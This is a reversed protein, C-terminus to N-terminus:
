GTACEAAGPDGPLLWLQNTSAGPFPADGVQVSCTGVPLVALWVRGGQDDVPFDQTPVPTWGTVDVGTSTSPATGQNAQVLPAGQPTAWGMVFGTGDLVVWQPACGPGTDLTGYQLRLCRYDLVGTRELGVLASLTWRQGDTEGEALVQETAGEPPGAYGYAAEFEDLATQWRAEDMGVVQNALQLASEETAVPQDREYRSDEVTIVVGPEQEWVIRHGYIRGEDTMPGVLARHGHVDADTFPYSSNQEAMTIAEDVTLGYLSTSAIVAVQWNDGLGEAVPGYTVRRGISPFEEVSSVILGAPVEPLEAAIWGVDDSGGPNSETETASSGCSAVLAVMTAGIAVVWRWSAGGNDAM